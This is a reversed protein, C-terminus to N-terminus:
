HEMNGIIGDKTSIHKALSTWEKMFIVSWEQIYFGFSSFLVSETDCFPQNM